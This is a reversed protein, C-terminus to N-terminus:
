QRNRDGIFIRPAPISFDAAVPARLSPIPDLAANTLIAIHAKAPKVQSSRLLDVAQVASAGVAAPAHRVTDAAQAASLGTMMALLFLFSRTLM